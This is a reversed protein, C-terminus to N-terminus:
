NSGGLLLSDDGNIVTRGAGGEIGVAYDECRDMLGLKVNGTGVEIKLKEATLKKIDIDGVSVQIAANAGIRMEAAEISGAGAQMVMNQANLAEISANGTGLEMDFNKYDQEPLYLTIKAKDAYNLSNGIRWGALEASEPKKEIIRLRGNEAYLECNPLYVNDMVCATRDSKKIEIDASEADISVWSFEEDFEKELKGMDEKLKSTNMNRYIRVGWYCLSGLLSLLAAAIILNRITKKM